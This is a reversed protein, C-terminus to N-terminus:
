YKQKESFVAIRINEVSRDELEVIGEEAIDLINFKLNLHQM